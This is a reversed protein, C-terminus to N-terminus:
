VVSVKMGKAFGKDKGPRSGAQQGTAGNGGIAIEGSVAGFLGGIVGIDFGIERRDRGFDGPADVLDQDFVVLHRGPWTRAWISSSSKRAASVVTACPSTAAISPLTARSLAAMARCCPPSRAGCPRRDARVLGVEDESALVARTVAMQGFAARARLFQPLAGFGLGGGGVGGAGAILGFHAIGGALDGHELCLQLLGFALEVLCAARFQCARSL